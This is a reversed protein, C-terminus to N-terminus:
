SPAFTAPPAQAEPAAQGAPLPLSALDSGLQSLIESLAQGYGRVLAGPTAQELAVRRSITRQYAILTRPSSTDMLAFQVTMVASPSDSRRTDGYLETVTAELVCPASKASQTSGPQAVAKFPGARDLWDAIENGLMSAPDTIFAQYPDSVYRVDDVRYVLANGAFAATVRVNGMRLMDARRAATSSAPLTPGIIYTTPQPVPKGISCAALILTACLAAAPHHTSM